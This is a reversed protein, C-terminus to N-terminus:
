RIITVYLPVPVAVTVLEGEPILQVEFQETAVEPAPVPVTVLWGLPILQGGVQVAFKLLPDVVIRVALAAAPEANAPQVPAHM